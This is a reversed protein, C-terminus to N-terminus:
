RRPTRRSSRRSEPQKGPDDQGTAEQWRAFFALLHPATLNAEAWAAVDDETALCQKAWGAYNGTSVATFDAMRWDSQPKVWVHTDYDDTSELLVKVCGAAALETEEDDEPAPAADPATLGRSEALQARLAAAEEKLAIIEARERSLKALEAEQEADVEAQMRDVPSPEPAAHTPQYGLPASM